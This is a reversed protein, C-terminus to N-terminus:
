KFSGTFVLEDIPKRDRPQKEMEAFNPQLQEPADQYGIAAMVMPNFEEPINFHKRAKSKSFGGMQHSRLGEAEAQLTIYAMSQGVDYQYVSNEEGKASTKKGVALLLVPASGAWIQNFEVLCDHLKDWTDDGKIGLIFRWPQENFSSPAWRAAELINNLQDNSVKKNSFSRPSWRNKIIPHIDQSTIAPKEM